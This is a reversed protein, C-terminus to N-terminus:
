QLCSSSTVNAISTGGGEGEGADGKEEQGGRHATSIFFLPLFSLSCSLNQRVFQRWPLRIEMQVAGSQVRVEAKM